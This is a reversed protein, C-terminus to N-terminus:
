LQKQTVGFIVIQLVNLVNEMVKLPVSICLQFDGLM